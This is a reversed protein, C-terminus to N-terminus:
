GVPFRFDKAAESGQLERGGAFLFDGVFDGLMEVIAILIEECGSLCRVVGEAFREVFEFASFGRACLRWGTSVSKCRSGMASPFATM